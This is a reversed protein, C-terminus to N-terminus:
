DEHDRPRVAPDGPSASALAAAVARLLHAYPNRGEELVPIVRALAGSVLSAVEAAPAPASRAILRLLQPMHDPLEPTERIGAAHLDDRLAALFSGREYSEGFMHWGVDLTTRPDFDFSSTYLEQLGALDMPATAQQFVAVPEAAQPAGAALEARCAAITAAFDGGPYSLADALRECAAPNATM